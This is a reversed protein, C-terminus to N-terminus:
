DEDSSTYQINYSLHINTFFIMIVIDNVDYKSLDIYKNSCTIPICSNKRFIGYLSKRSYKPFVYKYIDKIQVQYTTINYLPYSINRVYSIKKKLKWIPSKPLYSIIINSIDKYFPLISYIHKTYANYISSYNTNYLLKSYIPMEIYRVDFVFKSLTSKQKDYLLYLNKPTLIIDKYTYHLHISPFLNFPYNNSFSYQLIDKNPVLYLHTIM